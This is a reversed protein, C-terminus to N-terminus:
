GEVHLGQAPAPGASHASGGDQLARVQPLPQDHDPRHVGRMKDTGKKPVPFFDSWVDRTDTQDQLPCVSGINIYHQLTDRCAKLEKPKGAQSRASDFPQNFSLPGNNWELPIGHTLVQIHWPGAIKKWLDLSLKCRGATLTAHPNPLRVSDGTRSGSSPENSFAPRCM